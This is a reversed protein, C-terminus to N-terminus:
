VKLSPVKETLTNLRDVIYRVTSPTILLDQVGVEAAAQLVAASIFNTQALIIPPRFKSERLVTIGDMYPLMLDLILIDPRVTEILHLADTGSSCIHVEYRSLSNSLATSTAKCITAILVKKM